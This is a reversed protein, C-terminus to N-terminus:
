KAVVELRRADEAAETLLWNRFTAVKPRKSTARPCVIWYLKSLPLAVAFPRVLRGNLLDSAALATRALTFGQGDIAADIMMRARNLVPGSLPKSRVVGAAALWRTWDKHSDLHLLPFKLVDSPERVRQRGTVSDGCRLSHPIGSESALVHLLNRASGTDV